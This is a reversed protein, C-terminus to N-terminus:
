RGSCFKSVTRRLLLGKHQQHTGSIHCHGCPASVLCSTHILRATIMAKWLWLTNEDARVCVASSYEIPLDAQALSGVSDPGCWLRQLNSLLSQEICM